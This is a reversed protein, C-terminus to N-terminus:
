EEQERRWARVAEDLAELLDDIKGKYEDFIAFEFGGSQRTRIANTVDYTGGAGRDVLRVRVDRGGEHKLMMLGAVNAFMVQAVVVDEDGAGQVIQVRDIGIVVRRKRAIQVVSLGIFLAGLMGLVLAGLTLFVGPRNDGDAAFRWVVVVATVLVFFLGGFVGFLGKRASPGFTTGDVPEPRPADRAPM